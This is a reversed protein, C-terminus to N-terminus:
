IIRNIGSIGAYEATSLPNEPILFPKQSNVAERKLRSYM